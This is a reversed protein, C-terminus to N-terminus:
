LQGGERRSNGFLLEDSNKSTNSLVAGLCFLKSRKQVM